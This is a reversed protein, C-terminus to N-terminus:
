CAVLMTARWIRSEVHVQAIKFVSGLMDEIPKSGKKTLVSTLAVFSSEMATSKTGFPTSVFTLLMKM